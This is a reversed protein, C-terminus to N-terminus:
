QSVAVNRKNLEKSSKVLLERLKVIKERIDQLDNYIRSLTYQSCYKSGYIYRSVKDIDDILSEIFWIIFDIDVM